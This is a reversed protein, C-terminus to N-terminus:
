LFQNQQAAPVAAAGPLKSAQDKLAILFQRVLIDVVNQYLDRPVVKASFGNSENIKNQAELIAHVIDVLGRRLAKDVLRLEGANKGDGHRVIKELENM